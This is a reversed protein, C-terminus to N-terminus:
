IIFMSGFYTFVLIVILSREKMKDRGSCDIFYNTSSFLQLLSIVTLFKLISHFATQLWKSIVSELLGKQVAAGIYEELIKM